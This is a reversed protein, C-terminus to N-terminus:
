DGSALLRDLTRDLEEAKLDKVIVNGEQDLLFSTPVKDINCAICVPSEWGKLDSVHIWPLNNEAIGNVWEEKNKDLSIAYIEFGKNKYKEYAPLYYYCNDESCLLNGSEWFHVLTYKNRTPNLPIKRGDPSEMVIEEFHIPHEVIRNLVLVYAGLLLLVSAAIAGLSGWNYRTKGSKIVEQEILKSRISTWSDDQPQVRDFYSRNQKIIRELEDM